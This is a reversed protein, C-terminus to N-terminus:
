RSLLAKQNAVRVSERRSSSSSSQTETCHRLSVCMSEFYFVNFECSSNPKLFVQFSQNYCTQKTLLGWPNSMFFITLDPSM